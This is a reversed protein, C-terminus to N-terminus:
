SSGVSRIYIPAPQYRPQAYQLQVPAVQYQQKPAAVAEAVAQTETTRVLREPDSYKELMKALEARQLSGSHHFAQVAGAGDSIVLGATAPVELDNALKKGASTEKDVYVCVYHKFLLQNIQGDLEGERAVQSWGESGTGIFMAIPKHVEGARARALGYDKQWSPLEPINASLASGVLALAIWTQM